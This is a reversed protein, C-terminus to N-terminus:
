EFRHNSPGRTQWPPLTSYILCHQIDLRAVEGKVKCKWGIQIIMNPPLPSDTSICRKFSAWTNIQSLLLFPFIIWKWRTWITPSVSDFSYHDWAIGIWLMTWNEGISHIPSLSLHCVHWNVTREVLFFSQSHWRRVPESCGVVLHKKKFLAKQPQKLFM